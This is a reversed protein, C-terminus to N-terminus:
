RQVAGLLSDGVQPRAKSVLTQVAQALPEKAVKLGLAHHKHGLARPTIEVAVKAALPLHLHAFAHHRRQGVEHLTWVVRAHERHAM